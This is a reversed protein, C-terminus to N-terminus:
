NYIMRKNRQLLLDNRRLKLHNSQLKIRGIFSYYGELGLLGGFIMQDGSAQGEKM